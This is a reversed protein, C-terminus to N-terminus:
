DGRVQQLAESAPRRGKLKVPKFELSREPPLARGEAVLREIATRDGDLPALRAVPRNRDTVILQEGKEVRRLFKSLNQRLEGVGVTAKM